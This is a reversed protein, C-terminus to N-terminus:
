GTTMSSTTLDVTGFPFPFFYPGTGDGLPILAFWVQGVIVGVVAVLVVVLLTRDLVRVAHDIDVVRSLLHSLAFVIAGIFFAYMFPNAHLTMNVCMPAADVAHGQADLFGGDASVGGACGGKGATMFAGYAVAAVATVM